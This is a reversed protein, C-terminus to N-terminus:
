SNNGHAKSNWCMDIEAQKFGEEWSDGRASGPSYPNNDIDDLMAAARYGEFMYMMHQLNSYDSYKNNYHNFPFNTKNM